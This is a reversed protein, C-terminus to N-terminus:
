FNFDRTPYIHPHPLTQIQETKKKSLNCFEWKSVHTMLCCVVVHSTFSFETSISPETNQSFHHHLHFSLVGLDWCWWPATFSDCSFDWNLKSELCTRWVLWNELLLLLSAFDFSFQSTPPPQSFCVFQPSFVNLQTLKHITSLPLLYNEMVAWKWMLYVDTASSMMNERACMVYIIWLAFDYYHQFTLAAAALCTPTSSFSIFSKRSEKKRKREKENWWLLRLKEESRSLM